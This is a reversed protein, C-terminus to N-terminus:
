GWKGYFKSEKKLEAETSSSKQVSLEETRSVETISTEEM